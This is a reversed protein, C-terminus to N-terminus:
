NRQANKQRVAQQLAIIRFWIDLDLEVAEAIPLPVLQMAADYQLLAACKMCVTVDGPEPAKDPADEDTCATAYPAARQCEPCKSVPVRHPKDHLKYAMLLRV